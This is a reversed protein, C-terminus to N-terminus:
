YKIGSLKIDYLFKQKYFDASSLEERKFLKRVMQDRSKTNTIEEMLQRSEPHSKSSFVDFCRMFIPFAKYAAKRAKGRFFRNNGRAEDLEWFKNFIDAKSIIVFFDNIEYKVRSLKIDGTHDTPIASGIDSIINDLQKYVHSYIALFQPLTQTKLLEKKLNVAIRSGTEALILMPTIKNLKIEM